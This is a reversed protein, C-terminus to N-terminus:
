RGKGLLSDILKYVTSDIDNQIAKYSRNSIYVEWLRISGDHFRYTYTMKRYVELLDKVDNGSDIQILERAQDTPIDIEQNHKSGGIFKFIM